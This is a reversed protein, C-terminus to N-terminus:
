GDLKHAWAQSWAEGGVTLSVGTVNSWIAAVGTVTLTSSAVRVASASVDWNLAITPTGPQMCFISSVCVVSFPSGVGLMLEVRFWDGAAWGAGRSVTIPLNFGVLWAGATLTLLTAGGKLNVHHPNTTTSAITADPNGYTSYGGGGGGGGGLVVVARKNGTGTEKWIIRIPGTAASALRATVGASPVAFGHGADSVSVEAVAVGTIVARGVLGKGIPELTVAVCAAASAPAAAAFYPEAQVQHPLAVASVVPDGPALVSRAPLTGGTDNRVLVTLTPHVDGARPDGGGTTGGQRHRVFDAVANWGSASPRFPQGAQVRTPTPM